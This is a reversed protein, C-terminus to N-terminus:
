GHIQAHLLAVYRAFGGPTRGGHRASTIVRSGRTWTTGADQMAQVLLVDEHEHVPPSAGSPQIPRSASASTPATSTCAARSHRRAWEALTGPAIETPEPTVAGVVLDHRAAMRVHDILWTAPVVSDADTTAVWM